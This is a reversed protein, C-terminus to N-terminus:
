TWNLELFLNATWSATSSGSTMTCLKWSTVNWPCVIINKPLCKDGCYLKRDMVQVFVFKSKLRKGKEKLMGLLMRSSKVTLQNWYMRSQRWRKHGSTRRFLMWNRVDCVTTCQEAILRRTLLWVICAPFNTCEQLRFLESQWVFHLLYLTHWHPARSFTSCVVDYRDYLVKQKLVRGAQVSFSDGRGRLYM